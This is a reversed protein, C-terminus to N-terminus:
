DKYDDFGLSRLAREDDAWGDKVKVWLELFVKQGFLRKIDKRADTGVQKLRSGGKGIVISKQGNREVLILGNIRLLGAEDTKFQEIEVTVSYPLEDGLQRILKERIIEAALFRESRDTYYDEPFIFDGEPMADVLYSKLEDVQLGKLASGPIIQLFEHKDSLKQLQPLLLEKDKLQDTKNLFLIVPRKSAKLHELVLQDDETWRDPEVVFVVIDVDSISSAAARNMFRNIARAEQKHLGPTDVYVLQTNDFTDIGMIRHRTTQPKRSTISLKQGLLRNLLTSKGVNPRGVFAVFGCHTSPSAM